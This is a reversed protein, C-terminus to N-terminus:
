EKFDYIHLLVMLLSDHHNSEAQVPERDFVVGGQKFKINLSTENKKKNLSKKSINQGTEHTCGVINEHDARSWNIQWQM